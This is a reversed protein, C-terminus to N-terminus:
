QLSYQPRRPSAHHLMQPLLMDPFAHLEWAPPLLAVYLLPAGDRVGVLQVRVDGRLELPDLLPLGVEQADLIADSGLQLPLLHRCGRARPLVHVSERSGAAQCGIRTGSQRHLLLQVVTGYLVHGPLCSLSSQTAKNFM